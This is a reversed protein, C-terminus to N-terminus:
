PKQEPTPTSSAARVAGFLLPSFSRGLRTSAFTDARAVATVTVHDDATALKAVTAVWVADDGPREVRLYLYPGARLRETVLGDLVVPETLAHRTLPSAATTERTLAVAGAGALLLPMVLLWRNRM